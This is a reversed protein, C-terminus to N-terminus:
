FFQGKANSSEYNNNIQEIFFFLKLFAFIMILDTKVRKGSNERLVNGGVRPLAFGQRFSQQSCRAGGTQMWQLRTCLCVRRKNQMLGEHGARGMAKKVQYKCETAVTM